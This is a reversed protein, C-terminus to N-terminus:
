VFARGDIITGRRQLFLFRFSALHSSVLTLYGRPVRWATIRAKLIPLISRTPLRSVASVPDNVRCFFLIADRDKLSRESTSTLTKRNNAPRGSSPNLIHSLLAHFAFLRGREESVRGWSGELTRKGGEIALRVLRHTAARSFPSSIARSFLLRLSFYLSSFPYAGYTYKSFCSSQPLSPPKREEKTIHKM